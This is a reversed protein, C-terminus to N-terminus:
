RLTHTRVQAHFILVVTVYKALLTATYIRGCYLNSSSTNKIQRKCNYALIISHFQNEAYLADRLLLQFIFVSDPSNVQTYIKNPLSPLALVWLFAMCSYPLVHLFGSLFTGDYGRILGLPRRCM